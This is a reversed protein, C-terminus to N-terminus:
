SGPPENRLSRVQSHRHGRRRHLGQLARVSCPTCALRSTGDDGVDSGIWIGPCTSCCYWDPTETGAAYVRTGMKAGALIAGLRKAATIVTPLVHVCEAPLQDLRSVLSASAPSTEAYVITIRGKLPIDLGDFLDLIAQAGEGDAIFVHNIAYMDPLLGSYQPRSKIGQVLM